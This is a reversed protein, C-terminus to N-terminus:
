PSRGGPREAEIAAVLPEFAPPGEYGLGNIFFTPTGTVGGRLGGTFDTHIKVAYRKEVVAEQIDKEPLGMTRALSVPLLGSFRDQNAYLLDHMEWFRGHEAALEAVEAAPEADPYGELLAFHRYVFVLEPGFREQIAKVIPHAAGCRRCEYNGYEVLKFPADERGQVHDEATIPIALAAM